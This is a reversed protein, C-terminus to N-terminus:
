LRLHPKQSAARVSVGRATAEVGLDQLIARAAAEGSQAAGEMYGQYDLSTHDGAFYLNGVQEGETGRLRTWQGVRYCPYSGLSFQDAIWNTRVAQKQRVEAVGPFVQDLQQVLEAAHVEPPGVTIAVGHQGGTFDTVIAPGPDQRQTSAEWTNQFGTDTFVAATADYRTRWVAEAYATLLKTNTGYGLTQIALRMPAPLDVDLRMQRLISFPIALVIREYTRDTIGRGRPQLSVRYRGDPLEYVADLVTGSEVRDGLKAALQQPLRDNGGEISFREDSSGFTEFTGRDTGILSLLNFCSQEDADLGYEITYAVSVLDRVASTTPIRALYESISLHDLEVAAPNHTKYDPLEGVRALDCEIREAVPAFGKIIQTLPVPGGNFYYTEDTLGQQAEILDVVQLGLQPDTALGLMTEHETDIFEGGLEVTLGTGLANRLSLLRGGVRDRAEIVTVPVGAQHLRYAATLGALGGGVILVPAAGAAAARRAPPLLTPAAATAAVALAGKLLRRRSLHENFLGIAEAPAVGQSRSLRSIRYARRLTDMLPSRAV